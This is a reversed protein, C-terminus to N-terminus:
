NRLTAEMTIRNLAAADVSSFLKEGAPTVITLTWEPIPSLAVSPQAASEPVATTPAAGPQSSGAQGRAYCFVTMLLLSAILVTVKVKKMKMM